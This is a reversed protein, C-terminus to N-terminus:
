NSVSSQKRVPNDMGKLFFLRYTDSYISTKARGLGSSEQWIVEAVHWFPKRAKNRAKDQPTEKACRMAAYFFNQPFGISWRHELLEKRTTSAKGMLNNLVPVYHDWFYFFSYIQPIESKNWTKGFSKM